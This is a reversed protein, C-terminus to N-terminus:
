RAHIFTFNRKNLNGQQKLTLVFSCVISWTSPRESDHSHFKSPSPCHAMRDKSGAGTAGGWAEEKKMKRGTERKGKLVPLHSPHKTGKQRLHTFFSLSVAKWASPSPKAKWVAGPGSYSSLSGHTTSDFQEAGNELTGQSKRM